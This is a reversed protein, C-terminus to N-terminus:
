RGKGFRLRIAGSPCADACSGCLICDTTELGGAQLGEQFDISMPCAGTCSGCRRCAQPRAALRLAPWALFNRVSRGAILFPAIWCLTHCSARRGVLAAPLFFVAAVTLLVVLGQLNVVSIGHWTQYGPEARRFGGAQLTLYVLLLFWPGWVLYKIWRIRRRAVPRGRLRATLEQLGGM